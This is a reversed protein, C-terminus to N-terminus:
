YTHMQGQKDVSIDSELASALVVNDGVELLTSQREGIDAGCDVELVEDCRRAEHESRVTLTASAHGHWDRRICIYGEVRDVLSSSPDELCELAALLPETRQDDRRIEDAPTSIHSDKGGIIPLSIRTMPSYTVGRFNAATRLEARPFGM